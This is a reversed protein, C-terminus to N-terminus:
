RCARPLLPDALPSENMVIGDPRYKRIEDLSAEVLGSFRQYFSARRLFEWPQHLNVYRAIGRLLGADFSRASDLLLAVRRVRRM